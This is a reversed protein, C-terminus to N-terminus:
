LPLYLGNGDGCCGLGDSFLLLGWSREVRLLGTALSISLALFICEVARTLHAREPDPVSCLTDSTHRVRRPGEKAAAKRWTQM